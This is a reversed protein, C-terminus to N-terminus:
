IPVFSTQETFLFTGRGVHRELMGYSAIEQVARRITNRAVGYEAALGREPPLRGSTSWEGACIRRRLSQEIERAVIKPLQEESVRRM